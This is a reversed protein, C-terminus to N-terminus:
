DDEDEDEDPDGGPVDVYFPFARTIRDTDVAEGGMGTRNGVVAAMTVSVELDRSMRWRLGDFMEWLDVPQLRELDWPRLGLRYAV